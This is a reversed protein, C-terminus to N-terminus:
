GHPIIHLHKRTWGHWCYGDLFGVDATEHLDMMPAMEWNVGVCEEWAKAERSLEEQGRTFSSCSGAVERIVELCKADNLQGSSPARWLSAELMYIGCQWLLDLSQSYM